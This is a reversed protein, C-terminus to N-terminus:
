AVANLILYGAIIKGSTDLTIPKLDYRRSVRIKDSKINMDWWRETPMTGEPWAWNFEVGYTMTRRGVTPAVYALVVHKGWLYALAEAQGPNNTLKGAGARRFGPVGVVQAIIEDTAVGRASYKIREIIDPHDELKSAVQYGYVGVNPVVFLGDHIKDRGAKIDGIPNSNAYDSWQSTGSLTVSYGTAYNAATTALTVAAQELGMLISGSTEKTSEVIPDLDVNETNATQQEEITVVDSQSHEAAFYSDRSLTRPPIQRAQTGPARLDEQTRWAAGKQYVNYKDSQNDVPVTKFLEGAVFAENTFGVSINTLVRDVRLLSQDQFAM